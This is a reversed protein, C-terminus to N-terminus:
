HDHEAGAKGIDAKIVFSNRAAYREGPALGRIVEVTRDDRRGLEVPRAEFVDGYRVFVAPEERVTQIADLPVGVPVTVDEEVIEVSVFLGPRWRGEPNQLVVRATASRTHEGVLAGVYTVTGNAELGLARARVVAPLGTRVLPLDPEYV